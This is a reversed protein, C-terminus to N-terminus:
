LVLDFSLFNSDCSCGYFSFNVLLDLVKFGFFLNVLYPLVCLRALM